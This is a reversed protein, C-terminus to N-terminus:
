SFKITVWITAGAIVIALIANIWATRTASVNSKEIAKNLRMQNLLVIGKVTIKYKASGRVVMEIYGEKEAQDIVYSNTGAKSNDLITGEGIPSLHSDLYELTNFLGNSNLTMNRCWSM